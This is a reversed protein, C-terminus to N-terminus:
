ATDDVEVVSEELTGGLYLEVIKLLAAALVVHLKGFLQLTRVGVHALLHGVLALVGSVYMDLQKRLVVVGVDRQVLRDLCYVM